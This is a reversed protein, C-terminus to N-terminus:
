ATPALARLREVTEQLVQAAYDIHDETNTRGLSFRITGKMKKLPLKLGALVHSPANSGSACASGSSAAIGKLDFSILLSEADVGPFSVSLHGPIREDPHGNLSADPIIERIEQWFKGQLFMLRQAESAMLNLSIEAAKGLAVIGAVNETGGRKNREHEGGHIVKAMVTGQRVYLAGVGKPGYIKHASISLLDVNMVNVDIPLKGFSQVADTHFRINKDRAIRGIEGIPNITGIENNAHMISILITEPSIAEAVQGPHTMSHQDPELYTVEYGQKELHECTQIVAQHEILSTIIHNGKEKLAAASGQIALNDAETGGSVFIIESERANIVRAVQERAHEVAARAEQGYQHISSANGFRDSLFPLMAQLIEEGVPTTASHDLYISPM